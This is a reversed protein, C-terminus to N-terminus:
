TNINLRRSQMSQFQDRTDIKKKHSIFTDINKYTSKFFSASMRSDKALYLRGDYHEVISDLENMLQCTKYTMPFDLALTYGEMPFSLGPLSEKGFRKLVALFSGQGSTSIKHLLQTLGDKSSHLPFVCQYQTFGRKGYCKNWHHIHDLPYFFTDYDIIKTSESQPSLHFYGMNFLRVTWPNLAMNPLFFPISKKRKSSVYLHRKSQAHSLEDCTAHEGLMLVSRGLSSGKALCDIWAVSYTWHHHSEFYDMITDLNNARMTKQRIYSSSIPILKIAVEIIVGTLGMGGCTMYFLDPNEDYSCRNINGDSTLVDIYKLHHSLSGHVHHNKGHVNAAVAGGITIFKTGPTVPLFWGAPVITNLISELTMGSQCIFIGTSPDFSILQNFNTTSLVTANLASDGYCRGMGRPILNPIHQIVEKLQSLKHFPILSAQITPTNGWNSIENM